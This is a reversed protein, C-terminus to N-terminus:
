GRYQVGRLYLAPDEQLPHIAQSSQSLRDVDEVPQGHMHAMRHDQLGRRSSTSSPSSQTNRTM